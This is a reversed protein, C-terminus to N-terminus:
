KYECITMGHECGQGPGCDENDDCRFFCYGHECLMEVPCDDDGNCLYTCTGPGCNKDDCCIGDACDADVDCRGGILGACADPDLTCAPDVTGPGGGPYYASGRGGCSAAAPLLVLASAAVLRALRGLTLRSGAPGSQRARINSPTHWMRALIERM